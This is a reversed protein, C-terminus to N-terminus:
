HQRWSFTIKKKRTRRNIKQNKPESQIQRNHPNLLRDEEQLDEFTWIWVGSIYTHVEYILDQVDSRRFNWQYYRM